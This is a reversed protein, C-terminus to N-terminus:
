FGQDAQRNSRPAAGIESDEAEEISGGPRGRGVGAGQEVNAGREGRRGNLPVPGGSGQPLSLGTEVRHECELRVGNEGEALEPRDGGGVRRGFLEQLIYRGLRTASDLTDFIFTSLVMAGFTTASVRDLGTLANLFQGIGQAYIADPPAEKTNAAAPIVIMITALAIVAVFAELLM